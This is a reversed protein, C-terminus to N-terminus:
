MGVASVIKTPTPKASKSVAAALYRPGPRGLLAM